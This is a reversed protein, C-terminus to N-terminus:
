KEKIIASQKVTIEKCKTELFVHSIFDWNVSHDHRMQLSASKLKPAHKRISAVLHIKSRSTFFVICHFKVVPCQFRLFHEFVLCFHFSFSRCTSTWHVSMVKLSINSDGGQKRIHERSQETTKAFRFNGAKGSLESVTSWFLNLHSM